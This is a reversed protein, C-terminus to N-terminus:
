KDHDTLKSHYKEVQTYLKDELKDISQYLDESSAHAFIINKDGAIKIEAEATQVLKEVSLIVHITTIRNTFIKAIKSMKTIVYAEIAPTIEIHRSDINFTISM